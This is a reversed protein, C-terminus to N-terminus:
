RPLMAVATRVVGDVDVGTRVSSPTVGCARLEARLEEAVRPAGDGSRAYSCVLLRGGPAVFEALLRGVFAPRDEGAVYVLETRVTDWRRPPSWTAADGVLLRDAWRPLRRRALAVLEPSVDLGWPEVAM